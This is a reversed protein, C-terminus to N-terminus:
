SSKADLILIFTVPDPSCKINEQLIWVEFEDKLPKQLLMMDM